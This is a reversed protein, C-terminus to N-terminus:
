ATKEKENQPPLGIDARVAQIFKEENKRVQKLVGSVESRTMLAGLASSEWCLGSEHLKLMWALRLRWIMNGYGYAEGLKVVAQVASKEGYGLFM